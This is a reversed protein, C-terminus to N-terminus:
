TLRDGDTSVLNMRVIEPVADRLTCEAGIV